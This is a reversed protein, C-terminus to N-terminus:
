KGKKAARARIYDELVRMSRSGPALDFRANYLDTGNEKWWERGEATDMVDLITRAGFKEAAEAFTARDSEPISPDDLAMDYGFRPWTYYGNMGGKSGAAHTAIYDFGEGSAAEVQRSFIDAGLGEGQHQSKIVLIENKIFRKGDGDIGLFRSADQIKPHKVQVRVGVAGPMEPEDHFMRTFGGAWVAEVVADDPMGVSQGLEDWGGGPKTGIIAAVLRDAYAEDVDSDIRVEADSRGIGLSVKRKEPPPVDPIAEEENDSEDEDEEEEEEEDPPNMNSERAFEEGAERAEDEDTTWQGGETVDGDQVNAWRWVDIDEGGYELVGHELFVQQPFEEGEDDYFDWTELQEDDLRQYEVQQALVRPVRGGWSEVSGHPLDAAGVKGAKDKTATGGGNKRGFKGDEARPHKSEDWGGQSSGEAFGTGISWGQGGGEMRPPAPPAIGPPAAQPVRPVQAGNAMGPQLDGPRGMQEQQGSLADAPDDPNPRKRSYKEYAEELSLPVGMGHLGQDIRLEAELEALDIGSLTVRPYESSVFNLDVIDRVLGSDRDNILAALSHALFWVLLDATSRHVSSNGRGDTITGELAQLVAGQIGLFIDHKLDRIFGSFITDAAGAINIAEIKVGEPVSAWVQSRVRGLMSELTSQQSTTSYTGVLFPMASKEAAVARLKIVTDLMWYRSYVARFDSMGVPSGFLPLHQYILFRSPHWEAGANYRLGMLSVINLHPDTKIVVDDGVRKNKLRALPWKGSWKGREERVIIKESVSYGDTCGGSLISWVVEPMCGKIRENLDWDVFDAIRRDAAHRPNAPHTRLDLAAVDLIKGLVASKVNPDNWMKRYALRAAATEGTVDDVYPLFWPLIIGPPGGKVQEQQVISGAPSQGAHAPGPWGGASDRLFNLLGDPPIGAPSVIIPPPQWMAPLM